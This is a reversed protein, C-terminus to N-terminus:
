TTPTRYSMMAHICAVYYIWCILTACSVWYPQMQDQRWCLVFYLCLVHGFYGVSMITCALLFHSEAPVMLLHAWWYFAYRFMLHSFLQLGPRNTRFFFDSLLFFVLICAVNIGVTWVSLRWGDRLTCWLMSACFIWSLCKDAKHLASGGEPNSWFLTSVLCVTALLASLTSHDQLGYCVPVLMWLSTVGLIHANPAPTGETAHDTSFLARLQNHFM